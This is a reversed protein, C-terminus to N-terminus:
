FWSKRISRLKNNIVILSDVQKRLKKSVVKATRTFKGEFLFSTDVVRCYSHRKQWNCIVPAAGTGPVVVWGPLLSVM